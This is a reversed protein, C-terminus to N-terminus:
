GKSSKRSLRQFRQETHQERRQRRTRANNRRRVEESVHYKEQCLKRASDKDLPNGNEDRLQYPRQDRLIAYIRNLLHSASACIAQFHHKGKNVMQDYYCAAIDPDYLRAVETNIFITKKLLNPGAQTIKLGKAQEEGSQSSYPILGCWSRFHAPTPFRRIDGIFAIYIAASDEGIGYLTELCRNPHLKCYLPHIVEKRLQDIQEQLTDLRAQERQQGAQLQQYDLWDKQGYFKVVLNAQEFLAELWGSEQGPFDEQWETQLHDLGATVVEWPNYWHSRWWLTAEAGDLWNKSEGLWALMDTAAIRNKIATRLQTLRTLERCARQLSLHDADPIYVPRLREPITLYMRALIRADIRDSKARRQYVKRQAATEQGNVRYVKAGRQTLYSGITYWAIGTAELVAVLEVESESGTRAAELLKDIEAPNTGFSIPSGVFENSEKDLIVAKHAARVALDIGFIRTKM